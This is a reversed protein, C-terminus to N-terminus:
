HAALSPRTAPPPPVPASSVRSWGACTYQQARNVLSACSAKAAQRASAVEGSQEITNISVPAKNVSPLSSFEVIFSSSHLVSQVCAYAILHILHIPPQASARANAIGHLRCSTIARRGDRGSDELLTRAGRPRLGEYDGCSLQSVRSVLWSRQVWSQM